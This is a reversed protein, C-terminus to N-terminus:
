LRQGRKSAWYGQIRYYPVEGFKAKLMAEIRTIILSSRLRKRFETHTYTGLYITTHQTVKQSEKSRIKRPFKLDVYYEHRIRGARIRNVNIAYKRHRASKLRPSPTLKAEKDAYYTALIATRYQITTKRLTRYRFSQGARARLEKSIRHLSWDPHEEVIVGLHYERAEQSVKRM